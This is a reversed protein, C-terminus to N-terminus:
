KRLKLNNMALEYFYLQHQINIKYGLVKSFKRIKFTKKKKLIEKIRLIKKYMHDYGRHFSITKSREM